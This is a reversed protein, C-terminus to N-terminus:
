EDTDFTVQAPSKLASDKTMQFLLEALAADGAAMIMQAFSLEPESSQLPAAQSPEPPTEM